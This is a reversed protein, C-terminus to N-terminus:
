TNTTGKNNYLLNIHSEKNSYIHGIATPKTTATVRQQYGQQEKQQKHQKILHQKTKENIIM